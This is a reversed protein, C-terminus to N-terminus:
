CGHWRHSRQLSQSIVAERLKRGSERYGCHELYRQLARERLEGPLQDPLSANLQALNLTRRRRSVRIGFRM